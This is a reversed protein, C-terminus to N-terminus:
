HSRWGISFTHVPVHQSSHVWDFLCVEVVKQSQQVAIIGGVRTIIETRAAIPSDYLLLVNLIEFHYTQRNRGLGFFIFFDPPPPGDHTIKMITMTM